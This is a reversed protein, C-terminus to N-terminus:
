SADLRYFHDATGFFLARREAAGMTGTLRKFANWCAAYSYSAKDVPFNSEFMCREPGFAEICTEIWPRWTEALLASAPPDEGREFGFGNIRMGLGGLKVRVNPLRGLERISGAWAAFGEDDRGAYAGIRVVGGCHDLCIPQDPFTRALDVLEPLQPFFMWADYALGLPALQALGERYARDMLLGRPVASLPNALTPDADWTTLHRIGKLFGGGEELHAELVARVGAGLRLDAYAVIGRAVHPATGGGAQAVGRLFATEGVPRLEAPGQDRYRTLGQMFVTARIDHGSAADFVANRAAEADAIGKWDSMVQMRTQLMPIHDNIALNVAQALRAPDLKMLKGAALAVAPLSCVPHDWGRANLDVADLLQCDIEYALAVAAILDRGGARQAEAVAPCAAITDSPHGAEGARRGVYVDNLDYYRLAAGNSFAALDPTTRRATGLLTAGGTSAAAVERCIRVPGEDFAAIACGLADIIHAKTTEVTAPDLDAYRLGDAYAALRDALPAQAVLTAAACAWVLAAGRLFRRRGSRDDRM